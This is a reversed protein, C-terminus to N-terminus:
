HFSAFSAIFEILSFNRHLVDDARVKLKEKVMKTNNRVKCVLYLVFFFNNQRFIILLFKSILILIWNKTMHINNAKDEEIFFKELYDKKAFYNVTIDYFTFIAPAKLDISM